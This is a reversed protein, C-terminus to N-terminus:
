PSSILLAKLCAKGSKAELPSCIVSTASKASHTLIQSNRPPPPACCQDLKQTQACSEHPSTVCVWASANGVVSGPEPPRQRRIDPPQGVTLIYESSITVVAGVIAGVVNVAGGVTEGVLIGLTEGDVAPGDTAGVEDDGVVKGDLSGVKNGLVEGVDDGENAGVEDCGVLVGVDSGVLLGM